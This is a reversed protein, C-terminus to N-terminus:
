LFYLSIRKLLLNKYVEGKNGDAKIGYEGLRM